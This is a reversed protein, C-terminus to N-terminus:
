QEGSMDIDADGVAETEEAVVEKVMVAKKETTPSPEKNKSVWTIYTYAKTGHESVDLGEEEVEDSVRLGITFKLGYFLIIAFALTWCVICLIGM